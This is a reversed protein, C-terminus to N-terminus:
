VIGLYGFTKLEDIDEVSLGALSVGSWKKSLASADGYHLAPAVTGITKKGAENLYVSGAIEFQWPDKVRGLLDILFERRWICYQTTATYGATPKLTLVGEEDVDYESPSFCQSQCLRGSVISPDKAMRAAILKFTDIQLPGALLYDDLAFVIFDDNLSGLYHRIYPAWSEAGGKQEADLAVYFAALPDPKPGYNLYRVDLWVPLYKKTLHASARLLFKSGEHGALIVKM